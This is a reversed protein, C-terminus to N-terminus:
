LCYADDRRFLLMIKKEQKRQLKGFGPPRRKKAFGTNRREAGLGGSPFPISISITAGATLGATQRASVPRSCLEWLAFDGELWPQHRSRSPLVGSALGKPHFPLLV